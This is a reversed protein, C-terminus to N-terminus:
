LYLHHVCLKEIVLLPWTGYRSDFSVLMKCGDIPPFELVQMMQVILGDSIPSDCEVRFTQVHLIIIRGGYALTPPRKPSIIVLNHPSM